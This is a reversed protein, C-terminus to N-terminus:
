TGLRESLWQSNFGRHTEGNVEILPVGRGGKARFEQLYQPNQEVDKEIYAIGREDLWRKAMKCAGCRQTSYMVVKPNSAKEQMLREIRGQIDSLKAQKGRLAEQNQQYTQNASHYVAVAETDNPDTAQHMQVLRAYEKQLSDTSSAISQELNVAQMRAAALDGEVGLGTTESQTSMGDLTLEGSFFGFTILFAICCVISFFWPGLTTRWHGVLFYLGAIPLFLMLVAVLANAQFCRVLYLIVCIVWGLGAVVMLVGLILESM